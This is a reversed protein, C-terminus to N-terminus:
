KGFSQMMKSFINVHKATRMAKSKREDLLVSGDERELWENGSDDVGVRYKRLWFFLAAGLVLWFGAFYYLYVKDNKFRMISQQVYTQQRDPVYLVSLPKGPEFRDWEEQSVYENTKATILKGDKAAFAIEVQHDNKGVTAKSVITAVHEEGNEITHKLQKEDKYLWISCAVFLFFCLLFMRLGLTNFRRMIFWYVAFLFAGIILLELTGNMNEFFLNLLM